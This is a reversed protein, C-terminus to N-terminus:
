LGSVFRKHLSLVFAPVPLSHGHFFIRDSDVICPKLEPM